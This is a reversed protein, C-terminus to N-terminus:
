KKYGKFPKIPSQIQTSDLEQSENDGNNLDKYKIGAAKYAQKLMDHEIDTYAHATNFKGAWSEGDMDPVFTGDTSAVAMMVRNLDYTRDFTSNAFVHLGKTANQHRQSLKGIKAENIFEKARM